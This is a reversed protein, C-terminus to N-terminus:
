FILIRWVCNISRDGKKVIAGAGIVAGEGIHAGPLIIASAGIWAGKDITIDEFIDEHNIGDCSFNHTVGVITCNPAIQVKPGIVANEIYTGANIDCGSYLHSKKISVREYIKCDDGIVSNHITCFERIDINVGFKSKYWKVTICIGMKKEGKPLNGNCLKAQWLFHQALMM